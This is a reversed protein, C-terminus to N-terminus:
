KWKRGLFNHIEFLWVDTEYLYNNTKQLILNKEHKKSFKYKRKFATRKDKKRNLKWEDENENWIELLIEM